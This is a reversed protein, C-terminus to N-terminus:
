VAKIGIRDGVMTRTLVEEKKLVFFIVVTLRCPIFHIM